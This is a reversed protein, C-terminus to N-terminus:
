QPFLILDLQIIGILIPGLILIAFMNKVVAQQSLLQDIFQAIKLFNELVLQSHNYSETLPKLLDQIFVKWLVMIIGVGSLVTNYFGCLIFISVIGISMERALPHLKKVRGSGMNNVFITLILYIPLSLLAIIVWLSSAIQITFAVNMAHAKLVHVVTSLFIFFIFSFFVYIGVWFIRYVNSSPLIKKSM